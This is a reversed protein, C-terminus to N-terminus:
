IIITHAHMYAHAHLTIVMRENM